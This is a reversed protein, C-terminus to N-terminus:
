GNEIVISELAGYDFPMTAAPTPATPVRKVHGEHGHQWVSTCAAAALARLFTEPRVHTNLPRADWASINAPPVPSCLHRDHTQLM